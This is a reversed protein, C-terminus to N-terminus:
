REESDYYEKIAKQTKRKERARSFENPNFTAVRAEITQSVNSTIVVQCEEYVGNDVSRKYEQFLNNMREQETKSQQHFWQHNEASLLAGNEITAKGGKSKMRIHHYTLMKMRKYQAKGKYTLGSTDRLKLKEIFCEDGYLRIMADKVKKNGSM